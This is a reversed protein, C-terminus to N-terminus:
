ARIIFNLVLYPQLNNHAGDSGASGSNGTLNPVDITHNHAGASEAANAGNAGSFAQNVYSANSGGTVFNNNNLRVNHVHAGSGDTTAFSGHDHNITHTHSPMQASTLTHTKAGGTEGIVDFETQGTDQGVPARGKLNPLNFTTSGDGAGYTTGIVAFLAAYGTRSVATGDCLLWGAPASAGAFMTVEGVIGPNTNGRIIQTIWYNGPKGTVRVRNAENNESAAPADLSSIPIESSGYRCQIPIGDGDLVVLATGNPYITQVVGFKDAPRLYDLEEGIISKLITRMRLAIDYESFSM